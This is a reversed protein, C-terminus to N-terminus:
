HLLRDPLAPLGEALRNASWERCVAKLQETTALVAENLQTLAAQYETETMSM